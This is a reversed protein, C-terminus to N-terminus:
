LRKRRRKLPLRPCVDQRRIRGLFNKGRGAEVTETVSGGDPRSIACEVNGELLFVWLRGDEGLSAWGCTGRIGVTMNSTRIRFSEDEELPKDIQFFLSGERLVLELERGSQEIDVASEEDLKALRDEDLTIWGYSETRTDVGYGGYLGMNERLELEKEKEDQVLVTGRTRLLRLLAAKEGGCAPLLASALLMCFIAGCRRM